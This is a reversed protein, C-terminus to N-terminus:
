NAAVRTKGADSGPWEVGAIVHLHRELVRIPLLHRATRVGGMTALALADFEDDAMARLGVENPLQAKWMQTMWQAVLTKSASGNDTAFKKLQAPTVDATPIRRAYLQGVLRWWLGCRDIQKGSQHKRSLVPREIVVLDATSAAHLTKRLITNHRRAMVATPRCDYGLCATGCTHPHTRITTTQLTTEPPTKGIQLRALGTSTLSLDIGLITHKPNM